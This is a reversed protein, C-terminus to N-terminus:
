AAGKNLVFDFKLTHFPIDSHTGDPARGPAHSEWKTILSSRVGFVADSDLWRDGDRFVHTILREYGPAEIMFHMHAPRWAHRGTAALMRGVPGDTPIQYAEALVSKFHLRGTEDAHLVGRARHEGAEYQMDYLGAADAQWVEVRAGPVPEGAHGKITAQVYCPEGKAGRALDAGLPYELANEVYFPGFVTAETCGPPRRNNQAIVLMSLGLTDSLLIFEQRREDTIHGVDTLFRIGEFWEQETLQVERAFDHVHRILASMIQRVRPNSTKELLELVGPTITNEDVNRV